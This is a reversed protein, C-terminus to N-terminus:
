SYFVVNSVSDKTVPVCRSLPGFSDYEGSYWEGVEYGLDKLAPTIIEREITYMSGDRWDYSPEVKPLLDYLDIYFSITNTM